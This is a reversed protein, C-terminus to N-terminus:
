VVMARVGAKMSMIINGLDSQGAGWLVPEEGSADQMLPLLQLADEKRGKHEIAGLYKQVSKPSPRHLNNANTM